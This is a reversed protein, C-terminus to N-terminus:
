QVFMLRTIIINVQSFDDELVTYSYFILRRLGESEIVDVYHRGCLTLVSRPLNTVFSLIPGDPFNSSASLKCVMQLM